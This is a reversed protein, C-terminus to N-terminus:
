QKSNIADNKNLFIFLFLMLIIESFYGFTVGNPKMLKLM